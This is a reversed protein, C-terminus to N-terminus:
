GGPASTTEVPCCGARCSIWEGEDTELWRWRVTGSHSHPWSVRVAPKGAWDPPGGKGHRTAAFEGFGAAFKISIAPTASPDALGWKAVGPDRYAVEIGLIDCLEATTAELDRAVFVGQRFRM